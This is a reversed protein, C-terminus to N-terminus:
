VATVEKLGGFKSWDNKLDTKALQYGLLLQFSGGVGTVTLGTIFYKWGCIKM